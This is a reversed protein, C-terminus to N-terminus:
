IEEYTTIKTKLIKNRLSVDKFFELISDLEFDAGINQNYPSKIKISIKDKPKALLADPNATILIDVGDWERISEHIFRINEVRCGTKSLFFFTSPISKSVEKSVIEIVHEGDDNIDMLFNNFYNIVGDKLQDAHGFIELPAELYMFKNLEEKDKFDFFKLLNLSTIQEEKVNTSKIYKNYTYIFQGLFDRLTENLSIGIRAM